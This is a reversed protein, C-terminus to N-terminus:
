WTNEDNEAYYKPQAQVGAASILYDNVFGFSRRVLLAVNAGATVMVVDRERALNPPKSVLSTSTSIATTAVSYDLNDLDLDRLLRLEGKQMLDPIFAQYDPNTDEVMTQLAAYLTGYTYIQSM